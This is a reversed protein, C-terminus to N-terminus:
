RVTKHLVNSLRSEIGNEDYAAVSFYYEGPSLRRVEFESANADPVDISRVRAESASWFYIRYGSLREEGAPARWELTVSSGPQLMVPACGALLSAVAVSLV